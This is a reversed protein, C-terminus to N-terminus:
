PAPTYVFGSSLATTDLGTSGGYFLVAGDHMLTASMVGRFEVPAAPLGPNIGIANAGVLTTGDHLGTFAKGVLTTGTAQLGGSVLVKDNRLLLQNHWAVPTPLPSVLSWQTGDFVQADVTSIAESNQGGTYNGGTVLVRGDSLLSAGHFARGGGPGFLMPVRLDAVQTFAGTSPDFLEVTHTFFPVIGGFPTAVGGGNVGNVVLVRGDLMKTASHGARKSVMQQAATWTGSAPDYIEATNQASNLAAAWATAPNQYDQFGGTVLVRGDDLLTATHGARATTMSGTPTLTGTSHDYLECSAHCVGLSDLGGAILVRGDALRTATHTAREVALDPGPSTARSLPNFIETTSTATPITVTGQGGGAIFVQIRNDRGDEGLYTATHYMRPEAMPSVPTWSNPNEFYLPVTKSSSWAGGEFTVANSYFPPLSVWEPLPPLFLDFHLNGTADTPLVIIGYIPSFVNLCVAGLVPHVTTQFGDSYSFVVFSNPANPSGLDHRFFDGLYAPGVEIYAGGHGNGECIDQAALPLATLLLAGLAHHQM